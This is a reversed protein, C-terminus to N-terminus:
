YKFRKEPEKKPQNAQADKNIAKELMKAATPRPIVNTLAIAKVALAAALKKKDDETYNIKKGYKNIFYGNKLNNVSKAFNIGISVASYPVGGLNKRLAENETMDPGNNFRFRKDLIEQLKKKKKEEKAVDGDSGMSFKKRKERPKNPEAEKAAIAQEEPTGGQYYDLFLDFADLITEQVGPGTPIFFESIFDAPLYSIIGEERLKKEEETEDRGLVKYVGKALASSFLIKLGNYMAAEAIGSALSQAAKARDEVSAANPPSMIIGWNKNNKDQLSFKYSSFPFLFTRILRTKADKGSLLKGGLESVNSNQQDQVMFEAYDAADQNLEATKWDINDVNVGNKNLYYKYYAFWSANAVFVDPNVLLFKFEAESLKEIGDILKELNGSGSKELLRKANDISTISEESRISVGYGSKAVFDKIDNDSAYSLMDALGSTSSDATNIITNIAMPMSQGPLAFLSNLAGRSGYKSIWSTMKLIAKASNSNPVFNRGRLLQINYSLRSKIFEREETDPIIKKFDPSNVYGMYQSVSNATNIDILTRKFANYNNADFDYDRVRTVDGEPNTPLGQVRKNKLLNGSPKNDVFDFSISFNGKSFLDDDETVVRKEYFEPLYNKDKDLMINYTGAAIDRFRDYHNGWQDRWFQAADKNIPDIVKNVDELTVQETDKGNKIKDLIKQYMDAKKNDIKKSSNSLEAITLELQELKRQLEEKAEKPTANSIERTLDGYIGREFNNYASAFEQGNPKTKGFSKSYNDAAANAVKTGDVFGNVVGYFGSNRLFKRAKVESKFLNTLLNDPKSIYNGWIESYVGGILPIKGILGVSYKNSKIGAEADNKVNVAGQYSTLLGDMGFTSGNQIYNEVSEVAKLQQAPGLVSLDMNAIKNALIADESLKGKNFAKEESIKESLFTNLNRMMKETANKIIASKNIKLKKKDGSEIAEVYARMDEISSDKDLVGADVLEQHSALMAEKVKEDQKATINGSYENIVEQRAAVRPQLEGNVIKPTKIAEYVESANKIYEDLNEVNNANIGAFAKAMLKVDAPLKKADPLKNDRSLMQGIRAKAQQAAELKSAYEASEIVRKARDIFADRTDPNLLNSKLGNMIVNSQAKTLKAGKTLQAKFQDVASAVQEKFAKAGLKAGKAQNKLQNNLADLEKIAIKGSAKQYVSNIKSIAKARAKPTSLNGSLASFIRNQESASLAGEGKGKLYDTIFQRAKDAFTKDADPMASIENLSDNFSVAVEKETEEVPTVEEAVVEETPTTVEEVQGEEAVVQTEPQSEGEAVKGGVGAEPQVPVESTTQEQVANEALTKLKNNIEEIRKAKSGILIVNKGAMEKSLADKEKILIFAERQATQNLDDPIQSMISKVSKIENIQTRAQENDIKNSALESRVLALKSRILEPDNVFQRLAEYQEVSVSEPDSLLRNSLASAGYMMTGGLGELIAEEHAQEIFEQTGLEPTKFVDINNAKDYIDKVTNTFASQEFGTEYESVFGKAVGTAVKGVGTDLVQNVVDKGALISKGLESEATEKVINKVAKMTANAPIKSLVFSTFKGMPGTSVGKGIARVGFEELIGSVIGITYSLIAKDQEPLDKTAPNNDLEEKTSGVGQFMLAAPGLIMAPASGAVGVAVNALTSEKKLAQTYEETTGKSKLSEIAPKHREQLEKLYEKKLGGQDFKLWPKKELAETKIGFLDLTQAGLEYTAALSEDIGRSISGLGSVAANWLAGAVSGQKSKDYAVAAAYKKTRNINGDLYTSRSSLDNFTNSLSKQQSEINQVKLNLEPNQKIQEPTLKNYNIYDNLKAVEENLSEQLKRYEKTGQAISKSENTVEKNLVDLDKYPEIYGLWDAKRPDYNNVKNPDILLLGKSEGPKPKTEKAAKGSSESVLRAGLNKSGLPSPAPPLTSASATPEKKKVTTEFDPLEDVTAINFDPLEELTAVKQKIPQKAM